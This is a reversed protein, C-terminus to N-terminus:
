WYSSLTLLLQLNQISALIQYLGTSSEGREEDCKQFM